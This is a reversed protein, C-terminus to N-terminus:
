HFRFTFHQGGGGFPGGGGGFPNHHHAQQAQGSVDEGRDYKARTEEDSLIEYAEAVKLFEREAKEKEEVSADAAIKDPHYVKAMNRYAKKIESTSARREVGLVKYYNVEKSQKLAIEAKHLADQIQNEEPFHEKAQKLVRVAEEFDDQAQLVESLVIFADFLGGHLRMAEEAAEKAQAHEKQRLHVRAIRLLMPANFVAHGPDIALADRFYSLGGELDGVDVAELGKDSKKLMTKIRKHGEKCGKHEPDYKLGERFHTQAMEFEGLRYYALGRLELAPINSGDLKIARGTDAAAAYYDGLYFHCRARGILLDPAVETLSVAVDLHEKAAAWDGAEMLVGAEQVSSLCHRAEVLGDQAEAGGGMTQLLEYDAIAEGCRGMMKYLKARQKIKENNEPDLTLSSSLDQLAERYKKGRLHARYRKYHNKENEPELQIAQSLFKVAKEM